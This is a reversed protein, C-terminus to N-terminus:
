NAKRGSTPITMPAAPAPVGISEYHRKLQSIEYKLRLIELEQAHARLPDRGGKSLGIASRWRPELQALPILPYDVRLSEAWQRGVIELEKWIENLESERQNM